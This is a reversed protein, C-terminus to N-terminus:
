VCCRIIVGVADSGKWDFCVNGNLENDIKM